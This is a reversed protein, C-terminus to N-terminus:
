LVKISDQFIPVGRRILNASSKKAEFEHIILIKANTVNFPKCSFIDVYAYNQDTFTHVAIHSEAIIVVGTIGSESSSRGEYYIVNPKTIKRMNIKGPLDNLFNFIFQKDALKDHNCEELDLTLHPAYYGDSNEM